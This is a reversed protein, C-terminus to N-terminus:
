RRRKRVSGNAGPDPTATTAETTSSQETSTTAETTSSDGGGAATTSEAPQLTTTTVPVVSTAQWLQGRCADLANANSNNESALAITAIVFAFLAVSLFTILKNNLILDGIGRLIDRFAM